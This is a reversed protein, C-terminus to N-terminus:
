LEDDETEIDATDVTSVQDDSHIKETELETVREKRISYFRELCCRRQNQTWGEVVLAFETANAFGFTRAMTCFQRERVDEPPQFQYLIRGLETTSANEAFLRAEGIETDNGTEAARRSLQAEVKSSGIVESNEHTYQIGASALIAQVIDTKPWVKPQKFDAENTLLAALQSMASDEKDDDVRLPDDEDNLFDDMDVEVMDIGLKAEAVNTKNIIDRLVFNDEHFTLLNDLGFIEGKQFPNKQV